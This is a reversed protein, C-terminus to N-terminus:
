FAKAYSPLHFLRAGDCRMPVAQATGIGIAHSRCTLPVSGVAGSPAGIVSISYLM